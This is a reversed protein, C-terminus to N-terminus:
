ESHERRYLWIIILFGGYDYVAHTVIPTLLNPPDGLTMLWSLYFGAAFTILGYTPTVLHAVGFLLSSAVRGSGPFRPSSMWPELLGRFLLEESIGTLSALLILDYWTLMALSPALETSLFKRITRFAPIPLLFVTFFLVFLPLTGLLGWGIAQWNWSWNSLPDIGVAWGLGLAVLALGGLVFGSFNLFQHRDLPELITGGRM